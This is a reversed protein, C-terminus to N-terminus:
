NFPRKNFIFYGININFSVPDDSDEIYNMSTSIPGFPAHYVMRASFALYQRSLVDSYVPKNDDTRLIERYPQFLYGETRFELNKLITFIVNLGGALYNHARYQQLFISQSEPIPEYVPASLITSTYNSFFDQNSIGAEFNIGYKVKKSSKIYGHYILRLL